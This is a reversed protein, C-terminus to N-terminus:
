EKVIFYYINYTAFVKDNKMCNKEYIEIVDRLFSKGLYRTRSNKDDSSAYVMHSGIGKLSRLLDMVSEYSVKVKEIETTMSNFGAQKLKLVIEHFPHFRNVHERPELGAKIYAEEFAARLEQLSDDGFASFCFTGNEKLLGRASNFLRWIDPVWHAASSSYVLDFMNEKFPLHEMDATVYDMVSSCQENKKKAYTMMGHAIDCVTLRDIDFRDILKLAGSCTGAGLDLADTATMTDSMMGILKDEIASQMAANEDYTAASKSFYKKINKKVM